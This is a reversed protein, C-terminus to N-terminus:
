AVNIWATKKKLALPKRSCWAYKVGTVLHLRQQPSQCFSIPVTWKQLGTVGITQYEENAGRLVLESFWIELIRYFERFVLIVPLVTMLVVSVFYNKCSIQNYNKKKKFLSARLAQFSENM